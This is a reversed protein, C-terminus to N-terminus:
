NLMRVTTQRHITTTPLTSYVHLAPFSWLPIMPQYTYTVSLVGLTYTPAEPDASPCLPSGSPLITGNNNTCWAVVLSSKNPLSSIDNTVV